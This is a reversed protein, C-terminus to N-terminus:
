RQCTIKESREPQGEIIRAVARAVEDPSRDEVNIRHYNAYERGDPFPDFGYNAAEAQVIALAEGTIAGAEVLALAEGRLQSPLFSIDASGGARDFDDRRGSLRRLRTLPHLTLEVIRWRPFNELAYRIENEGRIGESLLPGDYGDAIALWSFVAAMGGPAQEAFRRTYGFRRRRDKIPKIREGALAQAMPIAIWDALERRSPILGMGAGGTRARLMDLTTSKGTGTLAVLMLLAKEGLPQFGDGGVLSVLPYQEALPPDLRPYVECLYYDRWDMMMGDYAPAADMMSALPAGELERGAGGSCRM